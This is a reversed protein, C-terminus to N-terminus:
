NIRELGKSFEAKYFVASLKELMQTQLEGKNYFELNIQDLTQQQGNSLYPPSNSHKCALFFQDTVLGMCLSQAPFLTNLDTTSFFSYHTEGDTVKGPHSHINFLSIIKPDAPINSVKVDSKRTLKGNILVQKEYFDKTKPQYQLSVQHRTVVDTKSGKTPPTAIIEKHVSFLSISHEYSFQSTFKALNKIEAWIKSDLSISTPYRKADPLKNQHQIIFKSFDYFNM